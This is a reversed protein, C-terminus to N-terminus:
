LSLVFYQLIAKVAPDLQAENHFTTYIARGTVKAVADVRAFPQGIVSFKRRLPGESM